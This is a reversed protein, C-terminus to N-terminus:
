VHLRMISHFINKDTNETLYTFLDDYDEEFFNVVDKCDENSEMDKYMIVNKYIICLSNNYLSAHKINPNNFLLITEDMEM